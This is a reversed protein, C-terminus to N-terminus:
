KEPRAIAKRIEEALKKCRDHMRPLIMRDNTTVSRIILTFQEEYVKDMTRRIDPVVTLDRSSRLLQTLAALLTLWNHQEAAFQEVTPKHGSLEAAKRAADYTAVCRTTDQLVEIAPRAGAPLSFSSFVLTAAAVVTRWVRNKRTCEPMELLVVHKIRNEAKCSASRQDLQGVYGCRASKKTPNIQLLEV